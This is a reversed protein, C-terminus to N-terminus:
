VSDDATQPPSVSITAWAGSAEGAGIRQVTWRFKYVAGGAAVVTVGFIVREDSSAVQEVSHARHNLMVEYLPGKIMEAFRSLPGTVRRNDPHALAYTQAIGADASPVDNNQLAQLQISVVQEATLAPDPRQLELAVASSAFCTAAIIAVLFRRM